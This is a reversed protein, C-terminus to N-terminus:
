VSKLTGKPLVASIASRQLKIQTNPAIEVTAFAEGLEVIRGAIGGSTIVEDGKSLAEVMARHEKAKKMQPRIVMFYMLAFIFLLPLMSMIPDPAAGAAQAYADSILFSMLMM